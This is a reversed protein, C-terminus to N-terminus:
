LMAPSADPDRQHADADPHSTAAKAKNPEEGPEKNPAVKARAKQQAEALIPTGDEVLREGIIVQVADANNEIFTEVADSTTLRKIRDCYNSVFFGPGLDNFKVEGIEDILDFRHDEPPHEEATTDPEKSDQPHLAAAREALNPAKITAQEQLEQPTAAPTIDRASALARAEALEEPDYVGLLIEPVVRRAWLRSTYYFLQQDPDTKWLPSNKPQIKEFEPSSVERPASEGALTGYVICTRKGGEGEYRCQLRERLPARTNVVAAILQSEYAIQDNVPYSKNAVAFPDMNWRLAQMTIAACAGPNGRLHKRVAIGAVAMIKSFELVEGMSGFSLTGGGGTDIVSLEGTVTRDISNGLREEITAPPRTNAVNQSM